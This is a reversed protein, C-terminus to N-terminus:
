VARVLLASINDSENRQKNLEILETIKAKMVTEDVCIQPSFTSGIEEPSIVHRFGDSCLMYCEGTRYTGTLFTPIVTKSAGISQLLVSRRPDTKAQEPTLKGLRVENATVTQDETLVNVASGTICYARSDGVHGILYRGDPLFLMATLTSGLQIHHQKGYEMIRRGLEKVMREWSYRIEDMVNHASLQAPLENEFWETFAALVTASALEGKKLGGMGDAVLAMLVPGQETEAEMVCMSDQNIDKTTGVDTHAASLFKM